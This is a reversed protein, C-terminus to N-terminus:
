RRSMLGPWNVILRAPTAATDPDVAAVIFRRGQDHVAYRTRSVDGLALEFLRRPPGFEPGLATMTVGVSMLTNSTADVFFLEKGDARWHPEIAGTTTVQWDRDSGDLARVHVEARGSTYSDYAVWRGDPSFEARDETDPNQILPRTSRDAFAYLWLDRGFKPDVRTYILFQGDSSWTDPYVTVDSTLLTSQGGGGGSSQRQIVFDSERDSGYAISLGDPSWVPDHDLSRGGSLQLRTGRDLHLTWVSRRNGDISNYAARTGDPAITVNSIRDGSVLERIQSGDRDLEVLRTSLTSSSDRYLLVGSASVSVATRASRVDSYVADAVLIPSTAATPQTFDIPQAFLRGEREYFLHGLALAASGNANPVVSRSDDDLTAVYVKSVRRDASVATYIFRRGDPLFQPDRLFAEDDRKRAVLRPNGGEAKMVQIGNNGGILLMDDGGWAIRAVPPVGSLAPEIGVFEGTSVSLLCIQSRQLFGVRTGDPSWFPATATATNDFTRTENTQLDRIALVRSGARTRSLFAVSRGDPSLAFEDARQMDPLLVDARIVPISVPDSVTAGPRGALFMAAMTAAAAVVAIAAGWAAVRWRLPVAPHGALDSPDQLDILIASAHGIRQRADKRLCRRLVREVNAPTDKQLKTWDPEARVVAGLIDTVTEGAFPSAGALMEYLVCGFAWLDARRDVPKGRAQEPSMYAATGLIMGHATMAVPGMVTPSNAITASSGPSAGEADIAKALGFDLVKVDGAPTLKINAPKLDRHVIGRDHAAELAEAIQIAIPVAEDVPLRGRAIRDALTEGEVLEMVLVRTDHHSELGYVQAIHPHNLAALTRAEREFRALREPDRAVADPLIKIAVDRTLVTDYGRYVEGMGGSGLHSVIDYHALRTGIM